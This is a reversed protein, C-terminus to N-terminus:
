PNTLQGHGRLGLWVRHPLALQLSFPLAKEPLRRSRRQPTARCTAHSTPIRPFQFGPWSGLDGSEWNELQGSSVIREGLPPGDRGSPVWPDTGDAVGDSTAEAAPGCLAEGGATGDCREHGSRSRGAQPREPPGPLM